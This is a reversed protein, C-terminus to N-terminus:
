SAAAAASHTAARAKRALLADIDDAPGPRAFLFGQMEDCGALRLLVRQEDTEIGEALVSMGLAHGLTVISQIIAGANGIEGLSAVFARDIKLRQFPFRQLYSLSSYGTGFDDLALGVGLARLAELREQTEQPDDILIGETMELVVRSPGIGAAAMAGAILDVLHPDRIQVPSLNVAVFLGPWRMADALARRLVFAGLEVMFGDEEPLAIFTAPPVPGRQPHTWRLLAEVGVMGAGDAAVIPQYHVDLGASSVAARLERILFHRDAHELELQAAFRRARGRGERKASRLALGARRILEEASTGDAPALTFGIGASIHLKQGAIVPESFAGLLAAILSEAAKSDVGSAIVAFTDESFRGLLAGEPLAGQLRQAIAILAFETGKQGLGDSLERFGDLDVLAFVTRSRSPNRRDHSSLVQDLRERVARRNALGTLADESTLQRITEISQAFRRLLRRAARSALLAALVLGIAALGVLSWLWNMAGILARDPTWSFWGVIRGQANQLSQIERGSGDVPDADFRLNKLGSRRAILRLQAADFHDIDGFVPRFENLTRSLAAHRASSLRADNAHTVALGVAACAIMAASVVGLFFLSGPAM